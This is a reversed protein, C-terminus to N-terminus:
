PKIILSIKLEHMLDIVRFFIFDYLLHLPLVLMPIISKITQCFVLFKFNGQEMWKFLIWKVLVIQASM